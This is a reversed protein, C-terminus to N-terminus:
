FQGPLFHRNARPMAREKFGRYQGQFRLALGNLHSSNSSKNKQILVNRQDSGILAHQVITQPHDFNPAVAFITQVSRLLGGANQGVQAVLFAHRRLRSFLTVM